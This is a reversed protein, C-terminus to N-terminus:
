SAPYRRVIRFGADRLSYFPENNARTDARIWNTNSDFTGGRETRGQSGSAPGEPNTQNSSPFSAFWDWCWEFVNGHMDYLGWKNAPKKGVEHTVRFIGNGANIEYWGTNNNATIGTSYPNGTGTRCAYEWEVETPLRYGNANINMTVANWAANNATPVAGWADPNTSSSITYVPTLSEKLSLRNCFAIAAYWSAGNVPRKEQIEGPV